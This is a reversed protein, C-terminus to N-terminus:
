LCVAQLPQQNMQGRERSVGKSDEECCFPDTLEKSDARVSFVDTLGKSDARVFFAPPTGGEWASWRDLTSRSEGATISKTNACYSLHSDHFAKGHNKQQEARLGNDGLIPGLGFHFLGRPMSLPDGQFVITAGDFCEHHIRLRLAFGRHHQHDVLDKAQGVPHLLQRVFHGFRSVD